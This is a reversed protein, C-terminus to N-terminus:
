LAPVVHDLPAHRVEQVVADDGDQPITSVREWSVRHRSMATQYPSLVVRPLDGKRHSEPCGLLGNGLEAGNDLLLPYDVPVRATNWTLELANVVIPPNLGTFLHSTLNRLSASCTALQDFSGLVLVPATM